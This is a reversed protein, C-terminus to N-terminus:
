GGASDAHLGPAPTVSGAPGRRFSRLALLMAVVTLGSSFYFAAGPLRVPAGASIFFGFLSTALAPGLVGAVSALSTLAGQVAGQEDPAIGRSILGQVSPGAIGSLSGFVIVVFVMWGATVSGYALLASASLTLGLLAARREGLRPVLVRTLGGQVVAAMLGVLALSEGTQRPTWGFRYSTYLVWTSPFVQHALNM